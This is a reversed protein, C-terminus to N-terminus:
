RPGRDQRTGLDVRPRRRALLRRLTERLPGRALACCLECAFLRESRREAGQRAAVVDAVPRAAEGTAASM